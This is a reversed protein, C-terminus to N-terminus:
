VLADKNKQKEKWRRICPSILESILSRYDMNMSETILCLDSWRPTLGPLPNCEIFCAKGQANLRIDVRAFDRCGLAMFAGRAVAEIDKKLAEDIQAPVQNEIEGRPDLKLQYSYIPHPDSSKKYVIEMPPLVRPKKEGILAVTFERGPLYEEVLAGQKYRTLILHVMERLETENTAVSKSAVGKSSGEAVPKVILPFSLEKSLKDKISLFLQGKAVAIGSASVVRKALGKDLALALTASDSGSYPIDLLELMAPVQAERNRGKFGEAINFVVDIDSSGIRVPLDANAELDIVEHGLAKLAERIAELTKPSDYEAEQDTMIDDGPIIRKLNYTFGVKLHKSNRKSGAFSNTKKDIMQRKRASKLIANLTEPITNLGEYEAAKYLGAGPELSPLANIEIFYIQGSPTVRFDMRGFDRINLKKIIKQALSRIEQETEEELLAPCRVGVADSDKNKLDYDYINYKRQALAEAGFVYEVPRMVGEYENTVGEIFPVTVDRGEIYEEVLIGHPYNKLLERLRQAFDTENEVVSKQTIGKSSGEFNPKLILPFRLDLKKLKKASHLLVSRPAPIGLERLVRKTMDKDLTLTCVYADSGVFALQLQEFVSPYFAERYRGSFGEATNFVLDPHLSELRAIVRSPTGSVEVLHVDHGLEKLANSLANITEPTDFEAEQESDTTKLNHTFAIKLM